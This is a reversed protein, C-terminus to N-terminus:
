KGVVESSLTEFEKRVSELQSALNTIEVATFRFPYFDYGGFVEKLSQENESVRVTQIRANRLIFFVIFPEDGINSPRMLDIRLGIPNRWWGPFSTGIVFDRSVLEESGAEGSELLGSNTPM